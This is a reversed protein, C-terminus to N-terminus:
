EEAADSYPAFVKDLVKLNYLGILGFGCTLWVVGLMLFLRASLLFMTLPLLNMFTVLLMKPLHAICLLIGNIAADKVPMPFRSLMPFVLGSFLVLIMGAFFIVGIVAMRGPFDLYAVIYYDAALATGAALLICWLGTTRLFDKRFARFFTKVSCDEGRRLCDLNTYMAKTAAGITIVPLCCLLWMLQTMVLAAIRGCWLLLPSDLFAMDKKM